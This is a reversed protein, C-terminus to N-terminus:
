YTTFITPTGIIIYIGTNYEIIGYSFERNNSLKEKGVYGNHIKLLKDNLNIDKLSNIYLLKGKYYEFYKVSKTKNNELKKLINKLYINTINENKNLIIGEVFLNDNEKWLKIEINNKGKIYFHYKDVEDFEYNDKFINKIRLVEKDIDSKINYQIKVGNESFDTEDMVIKEIYKYNDKSIISGNPINVLNLTFIIFYIIFSKIEM